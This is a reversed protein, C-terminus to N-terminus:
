QPGEKYDFIFIIVAYNSKTSAVVRCRAKRLGYNCINTMM